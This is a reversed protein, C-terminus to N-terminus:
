EQEDLEFALEPREISIETGFSAFGHKISQILETGDEPDPLAFGGEARHLLGQELDIWLSTRAENASPQGELFETWAEAAINYEAVLYAEKGRRVNVSIPTTGRLLDLYNDAILLSNEREYRAKSEDDHVPLWIGPNSYHEGGLVIWEDFEEAEQRGAGRVLHFRDPRVFEFDYELHMGEDSPGSSPRSDWLMRARYSGAAEITSAGALLREKWDAPAPEVAFSDMPIALFEALDTRALDGTSLEVLYRAKATAPHEPGLLRDCDALIAESLAHCRAHDGALGYVAALDFRPALRADDVPGFLREGDAVLQELLQCARDPDDRYTNALTGRILLTLEADAGFLETAEVVLREYRARAAAMDGEDFLDSAEQMRDRFGREGSRDFLGM